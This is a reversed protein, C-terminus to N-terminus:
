STWFDHGREILFAKLRKEVDEMIGSMGEVHMEAPVPLMKAALGNSLSDAMQGLEDAEEETM